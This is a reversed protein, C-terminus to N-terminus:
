STMRPPPERFGEQQALKALALDIVATPKSRMKAAFQDLWDKWEESGRITIANPQTGKKAPDNKTITLDQKTPRKKAV